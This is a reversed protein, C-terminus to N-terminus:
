FIMDCKEVWKKGERVCKEVWKEGDGVCKEVWKGGDRVCKEVWKEGDRVCKEGWKEAIQKNVNQRKLALLAKLHKKPHPRSLPKWSTSVAM